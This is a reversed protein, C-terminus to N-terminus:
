FQMLKASMAPLLHPAPRAILMVLFVVVGM